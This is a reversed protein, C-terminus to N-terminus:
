EQGADIVEAHCQRIHAVILALIEADTYRYPQGQRDRSFWINQDCEMCRHCRGDPYILWTAAVERYPALQELAIGALEGPARDNLPILNNPVHYYGSM